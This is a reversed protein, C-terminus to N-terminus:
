EVKNDSKFLYTESWQKFVEQIRVGIIKEDLVVFMEGEKGKLPEKSEM